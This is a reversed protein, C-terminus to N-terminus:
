YHKFQCIGQSLSYLFISLMKRTTDMRIFEQAPVQFSSNKMYTSESITVTHSNLVDSCMGSPHWPATSLEGGTKKENKIKGQVLYIKCLEM